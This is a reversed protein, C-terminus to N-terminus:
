IRRWSWFAMYFISNRETKQACTLIEHANRVQIIHRCVIPESSVSVKNIKWTVVIRRVIGSFFFRDVCNWYKQRNENPEFLRFAVRSRTFVSLTPSHAAFCLQIVRTDSHSGCFRRVVSKWKTWKMAYCGRLKPNKSTNEEMEQLFVVLAGSSFWCVHEWICVGSYCRVIRIRACTKNSCSDHSAM